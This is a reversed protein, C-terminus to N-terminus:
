QFDGPNNRYRSILENAIEMCAGEMAADDALNSSKLTRKRREVEDKATGGPYNKALVARGAPRGLADYVIKRITKDEFTTSLAWLLKPGVSSTFLQNFRGNKTTWQSLFTVGIGKKPGTVLAQLAFKDTNSMGLVQRQYETEDISGQKLIHNASAM